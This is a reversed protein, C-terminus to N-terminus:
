RSEKCKLTVVEELRRGGEGFGRCLFTSGAAATTPLGVGVGPRGWARM